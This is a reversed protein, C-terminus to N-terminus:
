RVTISLQDGELGQEGARVRARRLPRPELALRFRDGGESVRVEHLDVVGAVPGAPGGERALWAAMRRSGYFPTRLYQEDLLRLLELNEVTESVPLYNYTSRPLELLECQRCISVAPDPGIL